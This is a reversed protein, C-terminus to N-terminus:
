RVLKSVGKVKVVRQRAKREPVPTGGVAPHSRTTPSFTRANAATDYKKASCIWLVWHMGTPIMLALTPPVGMSAHVLSTHNAEKGSTIWVMCCFLSVADTCAVFRAAACALAGLGNLSKPM